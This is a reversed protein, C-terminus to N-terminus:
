IRVQSIWKPRRGTAYDSPHCLAASHWGQCCFFNGFIPSFWSFIPFPLVFRSSFAFIPFNRESQRKQCIASIPSSRQQWLRLRDKLRCHCHYIWLSFQLNPSLHRWHRATNARMTIIEMTRIGAIHTDQTGDQFMNWVPVTHRESFHANRSCTETQCGAFKTM